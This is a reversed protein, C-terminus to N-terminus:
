VVNFKLKLQERRRNVEDYKYIDNEVSSHEDPHLIIINLPEYKLEPYKSKPLVHHFYMSNITTGLWEGSVESRHLRSSWITEFFRWMALVDETQQRSEEATKRKKKIPKRKLTGTRKLM